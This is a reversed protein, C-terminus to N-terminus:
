FLLCFLGSFLVSFLFHFGVFHSAVWSSFLARQYAEPLRKLLTDLGLLDILTKPIARRMVGNRSPVDDYLDSGELEAQLNNLTQSLEDSITTRPKVGRSRAHEKWICSFENAANEVIKSQIDKVYSKYFESPKGDKFIMYDTYEETSLALGALVELSSSTVGGQYLCKLMM